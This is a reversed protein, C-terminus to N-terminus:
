FLDVKLVNLDDLVIKSRGQLSVDRCLYSAAFVFSVPFMQVHLAYVHICKHFVQSHTHVRVRACMCKMNAPILKCKLITRQVKLGGHM